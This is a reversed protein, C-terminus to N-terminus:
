RLARVTSQAERAGADLLARVTRGIGGARLRARFAALEALARALARRTARVQGTAAREAARAVGAAARAIRPRLARRVRGTGATEVAAGLAVLQERVAKFTAVPQVTVRQVTGASVAAYYLAGDPGFVVDVPGAAATVIPE